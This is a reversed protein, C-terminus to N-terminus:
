IEPDRPYVTCNRDNTSEQIMVRTNVVVAAEEYQENNVYEKIIEDILAEALDMENKLSEYILLAGNMINLKYDLDLKM